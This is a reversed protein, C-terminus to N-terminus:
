MKKFQSCVDMTATLVQQM